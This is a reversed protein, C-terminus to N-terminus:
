THNLIKMAYNSVFDGVFSLNLNLDPFKLAKSQIFVLHNNIFSQTHDIYKTLSDPIKKTKEFLDSISSLRKKVEIDIQSISDAM